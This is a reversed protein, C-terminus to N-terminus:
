LQTRVCTDTPLYALGPVAALPYSSSSIPLVQCLPHPLPPILSEQLWKQQKGQNQRKAGVPLGESVPAHACVEVKCNCPVSELPYSAAVEWCLPLHSSSLASSVPAQNNGLVQTSICPPCFPRFTGNDRGEVGWWVHGSNRPPAKCGIDLKM